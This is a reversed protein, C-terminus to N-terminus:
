FPPPPPPPMFDSQAPPPPPPAASYQTSPPITSVPPPPSPAFQAQASTAPPPPPIFANNIPAPPPVSFISSPPPPVAFSAPASPPPLAFSSISPPAPIAFSQTESFQPASFSAMAPNPPSVPGPLPHVVPPAPISPPMPPPPAFSANESSISPRGSQPASTFLTANSAAIEAPINFTPPALGENITMMPAALPPVKSKQNVSTFRQKAAYNGRDDRKVGDRSVAAMSIGVSDLANLDLQKFPVKSVNFTELKRKRAQPLFDRQPSVQKHLLLSRAADDHKFNM